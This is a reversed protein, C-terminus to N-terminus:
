GHSTEMLDKRPPESCHHRSLNEHLATESWILLFSDVALDPNTVPKRKLKLNGPSLTFKILEAQTLHGAETLRGDTGLPGVVMYQPLEWLLPCWTYSWPAVGHTHIKLLLIIDKRLTIGRTNRVRFRGRM